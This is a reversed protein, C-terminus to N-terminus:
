QSQSQQSGEEEEDWSGRKSSHDHTCHEEHNIKLDDFWHPCGVTLTWCSNSNM